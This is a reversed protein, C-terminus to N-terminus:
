ADSGAPFAVYNAYRDDARSVPDGPRGDPEIRRSRYGLAELQAFPESPDHGLSEAQPLSVEFIIADVARRRLLGAAGSIVDPEAGEVDIKLLAIRELGATEAYGDLTV